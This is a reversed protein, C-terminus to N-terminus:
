LAGAVVTPGAEGAAVAPGRGPWTHRQYNQRRNGFAARGRKKNDQVGRFNSAAAQTGSPATSCPASKM